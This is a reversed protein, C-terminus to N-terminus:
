LIPLPLPESLRRFVLMKVRFCHPANQSLIFTTSPCVPRAGASRPDHRRRRHHAAAVSSPREKRVKDISTGESVYAQEM